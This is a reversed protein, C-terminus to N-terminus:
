KVVTHKTNDIYKVFFINPSRPIMLVSDPVWQEMIYKVEKPYM